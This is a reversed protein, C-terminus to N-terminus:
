LVPVDAPMIDDFSAVKGPKAAAAPAAEAGTGLAAAASNPTGGFLDDGPVAPSAAAPTAPPSPAAAAPGSGFLDDDSPWSASPESPPPVADAPPGFLDDDAAPTKPGAFEALGGPHGALPDATTGPPALLDELAEDLQRGSSGSMRNGKSADLPGGDGWHIARLWAEKADDIDIKIRALGSDRGCAAKLQAETPHNEPTTWLARLLEKVAPLRWAGRLASIDGIKQGYTASECQVSLDVMKFRTAEVGGDLELLEVIKSRADDLKRYTWQSLRWVQMKAGPPNQLQTSKKSATNYRIVPIAFRRQPKMDDAYSVGADLMEQIGACAPCREPDLGQKAVIEDAGLCIPSGLFTNAIVTRVMKRVTKEEMLPGGNEEFVPLTLLHVWEMWAADDDPIWIRAIEGADLKLEDFRDVSSDDRHAGANLSAKPM